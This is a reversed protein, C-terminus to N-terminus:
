IDRFWMKGSLHRDDIYDFDSRNAVSMPLVSIVFGLGAPAAIGARECPNRQAGGGAQTRDGKVPSFPHVFIL